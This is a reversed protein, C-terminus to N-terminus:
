RLLHQCTHQQMFDYRRNWNVKCIVKTGILYEKKIIVQLGNSVLEVSLVENEDIYGLDCPQGGGEPYLCSDDLILSYSNSDSSILNCELVTSESEKLYSNIQSLYLKMM